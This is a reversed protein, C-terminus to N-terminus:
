LPLKCSCANTLKDGIYGILLHTTMVVVVTVYLLSAVGIMWLHSCEKCVGSSSCKSVNEPRFFDGRM